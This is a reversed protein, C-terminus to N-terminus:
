MFSDSTEEGGHHIYTFTGDALLLLTGHEPESVLVASLPDGEPDSDNVLLGVTESGIHTLNCSKNFLHLNIFQQM